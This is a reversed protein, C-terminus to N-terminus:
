DILAIPVNMKTHNMSGAAILAVLKKIKIKMSNEIAFNIM